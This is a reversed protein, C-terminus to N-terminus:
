VALAPRRRNSRVMSGVAGFGIIMMAWTSPEPIPASVMRITGLVDAKNPFEKYEWVYEYGGHKKKKKTKVATSEQTLYSSTISGNVYFGSIDFTYTDLGVLFSNNLSKPAVTVKDACGYKNFSDGSYGTFQCKGYRGSGDNPTEIHNFLFDFSKQGQSVGDVLIDAFFTLTVGTLTTGTVPWNNHQFVGLKFPGSMDGDGLDPTEFEMGTFQYSSKKYNGDETGHGWTVTSTEGTDDGNTIAGTPTSASWAGYVNGFTVVGASAPAAAALTLITTALAITKVNTLLNM